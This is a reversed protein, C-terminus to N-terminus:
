PGPMTSLAIRLYPEGASGGRLDARPQSSWIQGLIPGLCASPGAGNGLCPRCGAVVSPHTVPSSGAADLVVVPSSVDCSGRQCRTTCTLSSYTDATVANSRAECRTGTGRKGGAPLGSDRSAACAVWM